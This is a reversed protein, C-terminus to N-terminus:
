GSHQTRTAAARSLYMDLVEGESDVARWLCMQRGAIKVCCRMWTGSLCEIPWPPPASPPRSLPRSRRVPVRVTEYTVVIGREALLEEVDRRVSAYLASLALSAHQIIAKPFRFGHYPTASLDHDLLEAM